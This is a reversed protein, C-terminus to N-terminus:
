QGSCVTELKQLKVVKKTRPQRSHLMAARSQAGRLSLMHYEKPAVKRMTDGWQAEKREGCAGGGCVGAGQMSMRVYLSGLKSPIKGGLKTTISMKPLPVECM